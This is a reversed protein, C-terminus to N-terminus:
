QDAIKRLDFGSHAIQVEAFHNYEIGFSSRHLLFSKLHSSATSIRGTSERKRSKVTDRNAPSRPRSQTRGARKSTKQM